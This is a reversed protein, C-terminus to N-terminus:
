RGLCREAFIEFAGDEEDGVVFVKGVSDGGADPVEGGAVFDVKFAGVFFVLGGDSDLVRSPFHLSGTPVAAGRSDPSRLEVQVMEAAHLDDLNEM